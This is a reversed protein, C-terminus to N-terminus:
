NPEALIEQIQADTLPEPFIEPYLLPMYADLLRAGGIVGIGYSDRDTDTLVRGNKLANLESLLPDATMLAVLDAANKTADWSELIIVDPDLALLGEASATYGWTGPTPNPDAWDCIAVENLLSCPVSFSTSVWFEKGDATGSQLVTLNRPSLEKYANLRDEFTKIAAEAEAQKGLVQSYARLTQLTGQYSNDQTVVDAVPVIGELPAILEQWGFVLDPKIEAIVEFDPSDDVDPIFAITNPQEFYLPSAALMQPVSWDATALPTVDLAALHELCEHYLCIIREPPTDFTLVSGDNNTITYPQALGFFPLVFLICFLKKM